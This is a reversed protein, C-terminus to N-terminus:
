SEYAATVEESLRKKVNSYLLLTAVALAKGSIDQNDAVTDEMLSLIEDIAVIKGLKFAIEPYLRAADRELVKREQETM